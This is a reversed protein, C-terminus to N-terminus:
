LLHDSRRSTSRTSSLAVLDRCFPDGPRGTQDVVRHQFRGSRMRAAQCPDLLPVPSAMPGRAHVVSQAKTGLLTMDADYVNLREDM